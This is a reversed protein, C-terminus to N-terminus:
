HTLAILLVAAILWEGYPLSPLAPLPIARAMPRPDIQRQSFLPPFRTDM